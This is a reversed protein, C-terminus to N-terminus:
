DNLVNLHINKLQGHRQVVVDAVKMKLWNTAMLKAPLERTMDSADVKVVIDGPEFGSQKFYGSANRPNIIYGQLKGERFLPKLVFYDSLMLAAHRRNADVEEVPPPPEMGKFYDPRKLALTQAVGHYRVVVSDQTITEIWADDYGALTDGERYSQQQGAIKIMALSLWAEDSLLIGDVEASLPEQVQAGENRQQAESAFLSFSKEATTSEGARIRAGTLKDVAKKYDKYAIYGQQGSLILLIFMVCSAVLRYLYPTRM